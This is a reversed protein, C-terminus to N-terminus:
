PFCYPSSIVHFSKTHRSSPLDLAHPTIRLWPVHGKILHLLKAAVNAPPRLQELFPLVTQSRGCLDVVDVEQMQDLLNPGLQVGASVDVSARDPTPIRM